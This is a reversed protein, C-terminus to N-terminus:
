AAPLDDASLLDLVAREMRARVTADDLDPETRAPLADGFTVGAEFCDFVRPDNYFARCVAPTNCVGRVIRGTLPRPL